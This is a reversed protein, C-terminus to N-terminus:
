RCRRRQPHMAPYDSRKIHIGGFRMREPRLLHHQQFLQCGIQAHGDTMARCQRIQALALLSKAQQQIGRGLRDEPHIGLADAGEHIRGAEAHQAIRLRFHEALAHMREDMVGVRVSLKIGLFIAM